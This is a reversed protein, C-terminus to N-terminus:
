TKRHFEAVALSVCPLLHMSIRPHIRYCVFAYVFFKLLSLILFSFLTSLYPIGHLM